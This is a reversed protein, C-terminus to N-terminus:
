RRKKYFIEYIYPRKEKYSYMPVVVVDSYKKSHKSAKKMAGAKTRAFDKETTGYKKYILSITTRGPKKLMKYNAM